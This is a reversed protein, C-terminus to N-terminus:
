SSGLGRHVTAVLDDIDFPKHFYAFAGVRGAKAAAQGDATIVVIPVEIGHAAHVAEAVGYGDVGPLGMDLILLAPRRQALARLAQRGDAAMEVLLGEDEFTWQLMKRIEPDDDVVLIPASSSAGPAHRQREDSESM